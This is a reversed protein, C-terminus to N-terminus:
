GISGDSYHIWILKKGLEELATVMRSMSYIANNHPGISAAHSSEGIATLRVRSVGKHGICVDLETPEGVLAYDASIDSEIFAKMGLNEREEDVNFYLIITGKFPNGMRNLLIAAYLMSALGGKMDAAGRGYILNQIQRGEYPPMSWDDGAPVVDLHGNWIITKGPFRGRITAMVNPRGEAVHIFQSPIGETELLRKVFTAVEEENKNPNESNCRILGKIVSILESEEYRKTAKQYLRM